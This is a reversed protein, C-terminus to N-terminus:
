PLYLQGVMVGEISSKPFWGDSDHNAYGSMYVSDANQDSVVHIVRKIDGRNYIVVSGNPIEQGKYRLCLALTHEDVFPKMSGTPKVGSWFRNAPDSAVWDHADRTVTTVSESSRPSPTFTAQKSCASLVLVM